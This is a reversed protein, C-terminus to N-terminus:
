PIMWKIEDNLIVEDRELRQKLQKDQEFEVPFQKKETEIQM